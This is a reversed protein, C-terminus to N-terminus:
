SARGGHEVDNNEQETLRLVIPQSNPLTAQTITKLQVGLLKELSEGRDMAQVVARRGLIPNRPNALSEMERMMANAALLKEKESLRARPLPHGQADFAREILDFYEFIATGPDLDPFFEVDACVGALVLLESDVDELIVQLSVPDGQAVLSVGDDPDDPMQAVREILRNIAVLDFALDQMHQMAAEYRREASRLENARAFPTNAADASAKEKLIHNRSKEAEIADGGVKHLHYQRNNLSSVLGVMHKKGACKWRCRACNRSGGPTPGYVAKAKGLSRLLPGGNHCGPLSTNNTNGGALCIGDHLYLWGLPNLDSPNTLFEVEWDAANFAVRSRIREIDGSALDRLLAEDKGEDLKLTADKIAHEITKLGVKTYYVTMIFRQHGVLKMMIEVPVNGDVILHTILSVRTAHPSSWPQGNAPNILEIRKGGPHTIGEDWLLHEYAAMLRCWFADIENSGLPGVAEKDEFLRFLFATDPYQDLREKRQTSLKRTPHIDRWRTLKEIPNFKVQLDRLKLLWYYPDDALEDFQPWPCVFGMDKGSKSIDSTKNSNFYISVCVGNGEDQLSPRRFVGQQRPARVSGQALPSPNPVWKGDQYILTDAEGSDVFRAQGKRTPVQMCFLTAVARVPSWMELISDYKERKRLRTVCDPDNRDIQGETVAFWDPAQAQGNITRRGTLGQVWTWDEFNPGQVIRRRLDAIMWYPLITKTSESPLQSNTSNKVLNIPNRYLHPLRLPPSVSTDAFEETGLVFNILGHVEKTMRKGHESKPCAVEYFDPVITKSSLFEVPRKPLGLKLLYDEVFTGFGKIASTVDTTLEMWAIAYTRWEEIEPDLRVVWNFNLDEHRPILKIRKATGAKIAKKFWELAAPGKVGLEEAVETSSKGLEFLAIAKDKIEQPYRKLFIGLEKNVAAFPVKVQLAIEKVKKGEDHLKHIQRVNADTLKYKKLAKAMATQANAQPIGMDRAVQAVTEGAFVRGKLIKIINKSLPKAITSSTHKQIFSQSIGLRRGIHIKKEGNEFARKVEAITEAWKIKSVAPPANRSVASLSVGLESAVKTRSEGESVRRFIEQKVDAPIYYNVRNGFRKRLWSESVKFTRAIERRTVGSEILRIVEAMETEPLIKARAYLTEVRGDSTVVNKYRRSTDGRGFNKQLWKFSVGFAKRIKERSIGSALQRAIEAM